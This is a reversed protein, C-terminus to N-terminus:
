VVQGVIRKGQLFVMVTASLCILALMGSNAALVGGNQLISDIVSVKIPYDSDDPKVWRLLISDALYPSAAM